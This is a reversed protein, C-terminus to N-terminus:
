RRRLLEDLMRKAESDQHANLLASVRELKNRRADREPTAPAATSVVFRQIVPLVTARVYTEEFDIGDPQPQLTARAEAPLLVDAIASSLRREQHWKQVDREIREADKPLLQSTPIRLTTTKQSSWDANRAGLENLADSLWAWFVPRHPDDVDCVAILVPIPRRRLWNLTTAEFTQSVFTKDASYDASRSGKVQAYFEDQVEGTEATALTVIYDWGYDSKPPNTVWRDPVSHEFERSAADGTQHQEPRIPTKATM